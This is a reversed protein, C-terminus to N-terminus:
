DPAQHLADWLQRAAGDQGNWVKDPRYDRAEAVLEGRADRVEGHWFLKREFGGVQRWEDWIRWSYGRESCLADLRQPYTM